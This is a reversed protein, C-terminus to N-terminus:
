QDQHCSKTCVGQLLLNKCAICHDPGPGTCGGVCEEHCGSTSRPKETIKVFFLFKDNDIPM